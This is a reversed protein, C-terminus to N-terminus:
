EIVAIPMKLPGSSTLKDRRGGLVFALVPVFTEFDFYVLVLVLSLLVLLLILLVVNM